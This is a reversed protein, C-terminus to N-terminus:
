PTYFFLAYIMLATGAAIFLTLGIRKLWSVVPSESRYHRNMRRARRRQRRREERTMELPPAVYSGRKPVNDTMTPRERPDRGNTHGRPPQVVDPVRNAM